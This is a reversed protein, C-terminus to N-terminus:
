RTAQDTNRVDSLGIGAGTGRKISRYREILDSGSQQNTACCRSPRACQQEPNGATGPFPLALHGGQKNIENDNEPQQEEPSHREQRDKGAGGACFSAWRWGDLVAHDADRWGSRNRLWCGAPAHREDWIVPMLVTRGRLRRQARPCESRNERGIEGGGRPVRIPHM